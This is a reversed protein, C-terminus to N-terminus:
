ESSLRKRKKGRVKGGRCRKPVGRKGTDTLGESDPNTRMRFAIAPRRAPTRVYLLFISIFITETQLHTWNVHKVQHRKRGVESKRRGSTNRQRWASMRRLVRGILSLPWFGFFLFLILGTYHTGKHLGQRLVASCGMTKKSVEAATAGFNRRKEGRKATEGGPSRWM